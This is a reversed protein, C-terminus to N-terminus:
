IRFLGAELFAPELPLGPTSAIHDVPSAPLANADRAGEVPHDLLRFAFPGPVAFPMAGGSDDGDPSQGLIPCSVPLNLIPNNVIPLGVTIPALPQRSVPTQPGTWDAANILVSINHGSSNAVALDPYGDGNFDAVVIAQSGLDTDYRSPAQFTGDGNGLVVTVGSDKGGTGKFGAVVLDQLGDGNVDAVAVALARIGADVSQAAQFTGDGNGLLVSATQAGSNATVLDINGDGNFDGLAISSPFPGTPYLVAKQFTGNGNGLLVSVGSTGGLGAEDVVALDPIGDGRLDAVLLSMANSGAAYSVPPKFTGDGNSLLISVQNTTGGALVLDPIGDGDLDAMAVFVSPLPVSVLTSAKQFTGDGNGLLVSITTSRGSSSGVVIDPIGDGNVDGLSITTIAPAVAYHVADQFTGDGNGLLVEVGSDTRDAVVLDQIGDGRLDGSIVQVPV